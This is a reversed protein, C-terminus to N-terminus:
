KGESYKVSNNGKFNEFQYFFFIKGLRLWKDSNQTYEFTMTNEIM